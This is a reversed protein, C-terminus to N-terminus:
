ALVAVSWQHPVFCILLALLAQYDFDVKQFFNQLRREISEAKIDKDMKDALESFVVSRGCVLAPILNVLFLRRTKHAVIRHQDLLKALKALPKPAM